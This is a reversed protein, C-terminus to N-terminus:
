AHSHEQNSGDDVLVVFHGTAELSRRLRATASGIWSDHGGILILSHKKFAAALIKKADRCLYVQVRAEIGEAKLRKKFEETEAPSVGTPADVALPYPVARVHVITLPVGMTQALGRAVKAAAITEDLSTFLVYVADTRVVPNPHEYKLVSPTTEPANAALPIIQAM